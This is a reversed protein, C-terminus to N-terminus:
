LERAAVPLYACSLRVPWSLATFGAAAAADGCAATAGPVRLVGDEWELKRERKKKIPVRVDEAPRSM